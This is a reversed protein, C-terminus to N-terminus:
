RLPKQIASSNLPKPRFERSRELHRSLTRECRDSARDIAIYLDAEIDEVVINNHGALTLDIQCRKDIGGRPGNIDALRVKVRVIHKDNRNLAFRLRRKAYDRISDTLSFGKTQIDFQM